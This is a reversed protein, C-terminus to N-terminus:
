STSTLSIKVGDLKKIFSDENVKKMKYNNRIACAVTKTQYSFVLSYSTKERLNITDTANKIHRLFAVIVRKSHWILAFKEM